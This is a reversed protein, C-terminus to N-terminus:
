EMRDALLWQEVEALTDVNIAREGCPAAETGRVLFAQRLGAAGAAAIDSCRDGVMLSRKLDIGLDGAARLFMGPGPKRDIHDRRYTDVGHEPHFPCFYVGDLRIGREQFANRMWDMLVDFDLVSYYGRAIGSQNTVIVLKYGLRAATRTLSFIGEVWVVEESRHLYGVECNIVGDRDLFLAPTTASVSL